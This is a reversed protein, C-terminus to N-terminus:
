DNNALRIFIKQTESQMAKNFAEQWNDISYEDGLLYTIKDENKELWNMCEQFDYYNVAQLTLNKAVMLSADIAVGQKKRSKVILKGEEKLMYMMIKLDEEEFVTEIIYDYQEQIDKLSFENAHLSAKLKKEDILEVDLGADIAITYTLQAIRNAGYIAGKGKPKANLIAMSAALPETYAAARDSVKEALVVQSRPVIIRETLSGNFDLGMFQRNPYLPNIAVKKGTLENKPDVLVIATFEHGLIIDENKAIIGSAVYLDTRCLGVTIVKLLLMEESPVSEILAIDVLETDLGPKKILAKM